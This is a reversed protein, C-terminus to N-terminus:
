CSGSRGPHSPADLDFRRLLFPRVAWGQLWGIVWLALGVLALGIDVYASVLLLTRPLLGYVALLTWLGVQALAWPFPLLIWRIPREDEGSMSM